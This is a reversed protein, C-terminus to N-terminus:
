SILKSILQNVLKPNAQGGTKKMIQGVFFGQLKKEGNKFRELEKPNEEFVSLIIKELESTDSIQSLNKDKVIKEPDDGSELMLEFIDKAIKGSITGNDILQILKALKEPTVSLEFIDCNRENVERLIESMIWNAIIKPNNHHKTCMEFYEAYNKVSTLVEADYAPLKYEKIFRKKKEDPLEALSSQIDKVWDNSVVVPILDPDPFYRYDHAEEKSRMSITISKDPNWLRTEQQIIGGESVAQKQRKIEYEIAKQVNKFSNMNKIETKTGFEKQGEPRISINADCRLSGEEMNCDSIGAYQLIAKLKQLYAKAEEGSRIDPESVIEVL